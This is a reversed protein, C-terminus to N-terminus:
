WGVSVPRRSLSFVMASQPRFGHREFDMYSLSSHLQARSATEDARNQVTEHSTQEPLPVPQVLNGDAQEVVDNSNQPTGLQVVATDSAGNRLASQEKTEELPALVELGEDAPLEDEHLNLSADLDVLPAKDASNQLVEQGRQKQSAAPEVPQHQNHQTDPDVVPINDARNQPAEQEGQKQSADHEVQGRDALEEQEDQHGSAKPDVVPTDSTKIQPAEQENQQQLFVPDALSTDTQEEENQGWPTDLEVVPDDMARERLANLAVSLETKAQKPKAFDVQRASLRADDAMPEWKLAPRIRVERISPRAPKELEPEQVLVGSRIERVSLKAREEESSSNQVWVSAGAARVQELQQAAGLLLARAWTEARAFTQAAEAVQVAAM